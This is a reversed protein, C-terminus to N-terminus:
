IKQKSKRLRRLCGVGILLLGLGGGILKTSATM